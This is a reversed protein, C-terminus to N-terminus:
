KGIINHVAISGRPTRATFDDREIQAGNKQLVQLILDETRKHGTQGPQREGFGVIQVTYAYAQKPDFTDHLSASSLCRLGLAVLTASVLLFRRMAPM